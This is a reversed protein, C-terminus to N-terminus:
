YTAANQSLFDALSTMAPFMKLMLYVCEIDHLREDPAGYLSALDPTPIFFRNTIAFPILQSASAIALALGSNSDLDDVYGKLIFKEIGSRVSHIVGSCFRNNKNLNTLDTFASLSAQGFSRGLLDAGFTGCVVLADLSCDRVALRNYLPSFPGDSLCANFFRRVHRARELERWLMGQVFLLSQVQMQQKEIGRQDSLVLFDYLAFALESASRIETGATNPAHENNQELLSENM